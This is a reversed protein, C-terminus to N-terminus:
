RRIERCCGTEDDICQGEPCQCGDTMAQGCMMMQEKAKCGGVCTNPFTHVLAGAMACREALSLDAPVSTCGAAEMSTSLTETEATRRVPETETETPRGGAETETETESGSETERVTEPGSIAASVEEAAPELDAGCAKWGGLLVMAVVLTVVARLRM